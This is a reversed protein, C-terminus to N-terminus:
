LKSTLCWFTNIAFDDLTEIRGVPNYIRGTEGDWAVAHHSGSRGSQGTLVGVNHHLAALLRQANGNAFEIKIPAGAGAHSRPNAEFPTVAYGLWWAYGILEQVHFGRYCNPEPNEPWVVQSGDHGLWEIVKGARVGLAM